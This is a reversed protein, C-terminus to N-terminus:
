SSGIWRLSEEAPKIKEVKTVEKKPLNIVGLVEDLHEDIDTSM